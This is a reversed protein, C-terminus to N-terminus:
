DNTRHREPNGIKQMRQKYPKQDRSGKYYYSTDVMSVGQSVKGIPQHCFATLFDLM